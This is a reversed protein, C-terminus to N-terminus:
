RIELLDDGKNISKNPQVFISAITGNIPSKIANEMKMAEIMLVTEGKQVTQGIEVPIKVVLGPMPAKLRMQKHEASGNTTHLFKKLVERTGDTIEANYEINKYFVNASYKDKSEINVLYNRNNVQYLTFDNDIRQILKVSYDKSNILFVSESIKEVEFNLNEIQIKIKDM